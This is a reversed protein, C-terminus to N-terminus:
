DSLWRRYGIHGNEANTISVDHTGDEDFFAKFCQYKLFYWWAM